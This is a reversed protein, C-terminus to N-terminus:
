INGFKRNIRVKLRLRRNENVSQEIGSLDDISSALGFIVIYMANNYFETIFAINLIFLGISILQAIYTKRYYYLNKLMYYNMLLYLFLSIIGGEFLIQLIMNHAHNAWWIGTMIVLGKGYICGNGIWPKESILRYMIDWLHTRGTLTTSKNFVGVIVFSLLDTLRFFVILFMALINCITLSLSNIFRGKDRKLLLELFSFVAFSVISTSSKVLILSIMMVSILIIPRLVVGRIKRYMYAALYFGIFFCIFHNKYGLLWNGRLGANSTYMGEPFLLITIFNTYVLIEGVLFIATFLEKKKDAAFSSCILFISLHSVTRLIITNLSINNYITSLILFFCFLVYICLIRLKERHIEKYLEVHIIYRILIALGSLIRLINFLGDLLPVYDFYGPKCHPIILVMIILIYKISCGSKNEFRM